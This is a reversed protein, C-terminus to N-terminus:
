RDTGENLDYPLPLGRGRRHYRVSVTVSKKPPVPIYTVHISKEEEDQVPPISPALADVPAGLTASIIDTAPPNM